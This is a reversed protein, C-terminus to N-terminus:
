NPELGAASGYQITGSAHRFSYRSYHIHPIDDFFYRSLAKGLRNRYFEILIGIAHFHLLPASLPDKALTDHSLRLVLDRLTGWRIQDQDVQLKDSFGPLQIWPIAQSRIYASANADGTLQAIKNSRGRVTGSSPPAAFNLGPRTEIIRSIRQLDVENDVFM